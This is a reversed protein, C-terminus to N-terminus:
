GAVRPGQERRRQADRGDDGRWPPARWAPLLRAVAEGTRNQLSEMMSAAQRYDRIANYYDGLMQCSWGRGYVAVAEEYRDGLSRWIAAAQGFKEVAQSLSDATEGARLEEAESVAFVAAVRRRDEETAERLAIETILYKAPASFKSASRVEITYDGATEAIVSVGEM